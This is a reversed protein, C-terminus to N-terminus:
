EMYNKKVNEWSKHDENAAARTHWKYLNQECISLVTGFVAKAINWPVVYQSDVRCPPRM